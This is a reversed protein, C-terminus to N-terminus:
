YSVKRENKVKKMKRFLYHHDSYISSRMIM